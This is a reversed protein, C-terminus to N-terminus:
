YTFNAWPYHQESNMSSPGTYAPFGGLDTGTNAKATNRIVFSGGNAIGSGTNLVAHNSDIRSTGTAVAVSAQIGGGGLSGSTNNNSCINGVIYTEQEVVIGSLVNSRFACNRVASGNTADVGSGGNTTSSCESVTSGFAATIGAGTNNAVSCTRIVSGNGGEIGFLGNFSAACDSIMSGEGGSIGSSLNYSASCHNIVGDGFVKIGYVTNAYATCDSITTTNSLNFGNFGNSAATCGVLTTGVGARFGGAAPNSSSVCDKVLSGTGIGLGAAGSGGSCGTASLKELVSNSALLAVVGGGAWNQVAGNRIVVNKRAAPVNIGRATGTGNGLLAFGNLDLNVNDSSIVIAGNTGSATLNGALYYSGPLTITYPLAFGPQTPDIVTRAEVQTLSKM